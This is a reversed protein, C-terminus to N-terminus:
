RLVTGTEESRGQVKIFIPDAQFTGEREVTGWPVSVWWAKGAMAEGPQPWRGGFDVKWAPWSATTWDMLWTDKSTTFYCRPPYPPRNPPQASTATAVHCHVLEPEEVM